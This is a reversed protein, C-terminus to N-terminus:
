RNASAVDAHHPRNPASRRRRQAITPRSKKLAAQELAIIQIRRNANRTELEIVKDAAALRAEDTKNADKMITTQEEIAINTRSIANNLEAQAKTMADLMRESDSGRQYAAGM